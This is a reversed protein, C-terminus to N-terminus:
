EVREVRRRRFGLICECVPRELESVSLVHRFRSRTAAYECSSLDDAGPWINCLEMSIDARM